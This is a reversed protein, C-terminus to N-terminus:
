FEIQQWAAIIGADGFRQLTAADPPIRNLMWLYLDSVPGRIAADSKRHERTHSLCDPRLDLSWEGGPGLDSDTAHLHLSGSLGDVPQRVLWLAVFSLYEDIGDVALDSAIPHPPTGPDAAHEADWRHIATEQAMRRFWFSAPSPRRDRWNWVPEEPDCGALTAVLAKRVEDYSALTAEFGEPIASSRKIYEAARSSVIQDVWHYIADVHALLGTMDWEPCAAVRASPASRAAAALM